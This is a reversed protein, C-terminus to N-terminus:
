GNGEVRNRGNSKARYLNTDALQCLRAAGSQDSGALSAVGLSATVIDSVESSAHPIALASIAERILEAVALAGVQDTEPLLCAFEEGGIRAAVDAPRKLASAIAAAVRRLCDDGAPHGYFDNYRKFHDVDLLVLSLPLERRLHRHAEYEIAQDFHRRNYLGTLSDTVALKQLLARSRKIELHNRVRARVIAPSFPKSIYDVAGIELGRAESRPDSLATVFIVPIEATTPDGKLESCVAYGDLDPLMVDLLILDPLPAFRARLLGERGTLAFRVDYHELVAALVEINAPEDDVILITTPQM